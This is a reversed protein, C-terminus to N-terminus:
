EKVEKRKGKIAVHLFYNRRLIHGIFQSKYAINNLLTRKEGLREFVQENTVIESWKIKGMRRWLWTKFSELYKREM